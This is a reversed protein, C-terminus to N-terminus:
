GPLVGEAGIPAPEYYQSIQRVSYTNPVTGVAQVTAQHIGKRQFNQFLQDRAQQMGAIMPRFDKPAELQGNRRAVGWSYARAHNEMHPYRPWAFAPDTGWGQEAAQNPITIQTHGSQFDQQNPAGPPPYGYQDDIYYDLQLADHGWALNIRNHLDETHSFEISSAPLVGAEVEDYFPPEGWPPTVRYPVLQPEPASPLSGGGTVPPTSPYATQSFSM